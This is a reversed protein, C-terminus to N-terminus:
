NSHNNSRRSQSFAIQQIVFVICLRPVSNVGPVSTHGAITSAALLTSLETLLGALNTLAGILAAQTTLKGSPDKKTVPNDLAYSYANLQQPNSLIDSLNQQAMQEAAPSGLALFIPDESIFQGQAPNYYRANLYDLQTQGDYMQGIFIRKKAM